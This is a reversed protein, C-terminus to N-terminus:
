RQVPWRHRCCCRRADGALTAVAVVFPNRDRFSKSMAGAAGLASCTACPRSESRAPQAPPRGAAGRPQDTTGRVADAISRNGASIRICLITRTSGSATSRSTPSVCRRTTSTASPMTWRRCSRASPRSWAPSTPSSATSRPATTASSRLSTATTTPWSSSPASRARRHQRQIDQHDRRPQRPGPPDRPRSRGGRRRRHRPQRGPPRHSRRARRARSAVKALNDLSQGIKAENGNLAGVITDLFENVKAPDIAAVIPGLRNFLEGLDVVSRRRRSRRRRPAAGDVVHGPLPLPLAPRAPQALPDRRDHRDALKLEHKSGSRSWPAPGEVVQIGTVKGVKVGAVKVNDNILLGTVDDFTAHAQVLRRAAAGPRHAAVARQRHQLGLAVTITLCLTVFLGLKILTHRADAWWGPWRSRAAGARRADARPAARPTGSAATKTPDGTYGNPLDGSCDSLLPNAVPASSRSSRPWRQRRRLSRRHRSRGPDPLVPAPGVVVRAAAAEARRARRADQRGRDGAQQAAARQERARRRPRRSVRRTTCCRPSSTPARTSRRAAGRAADRVGAVAEDAHTPWRRRVARRPRRHVAPDGRRQRGPRDRVPSTTAARPQRQRRRGDGGRALTSSSPASSRPSSRRSSPYLDTLM